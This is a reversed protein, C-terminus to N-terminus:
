PSCLVVQRQAAPQKGAVRAGRLASLGSEGGGGGRRLGGSRALADRPRKGIRLAGGRQPGLRPVKRGGEEGGARGRLRVLVATLAGLAAAAPRVATRLGGGRGEASPGVGRRACAGPQDDHVLGGAAEAGDRAAALQAHRRAV